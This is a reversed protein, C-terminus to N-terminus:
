YLTSSKSGMKKEKLFEGQRANTSCLTHRLKKCKDSTIDEVVNATIIITSNM